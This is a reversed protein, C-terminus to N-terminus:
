ARSGPVWSQTLGSPVLWGPARLVGEGGRTVTAPVGYFANMAIM